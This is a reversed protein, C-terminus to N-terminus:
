WIWLFNVILVNVRSIISTLIEVCFFMISQGRVCYYSLRDLFVDVSGSCPRYVSLIGIQQNDTEVITGSIECHMEESFASVCLKKTKVGNRVYIMSGGHARHPRCYYDALFFGPIMMTKVNDSNCWHEVVSVIIPDQEVLLLELRDLKNSICQVNLQLLRFKEDSTASM